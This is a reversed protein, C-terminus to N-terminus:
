LSTVIMSKSRSMTKSTSFMILAIKLPTGRRGSGLPPDWISGGVLLACLECSADTVGADVGDSVLVDVDLAVEIYEKPFIVLLADRGKDRDGSDPSSAGFCTRKSGIPGGGGGGREFDSLVRFTYVSLEPCSRRAGPM